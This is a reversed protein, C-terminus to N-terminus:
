TDLIYLSLIFFIFIISSWYLEYNSFNRALDDISKMVIMLVGDSSSWLEGLVLSGPKWVEMIARAQDQLPNIVRNRTYYQLAIISSWYLEYDSFNYHTLDDMSKMVIM